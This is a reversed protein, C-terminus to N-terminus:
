QATRREALDEGLLRRQEAQLCLHQREDCAPQAVALDSLLQMEARVRDLVADLLEAAGDACAVPDLEGGPGAPVAELDPRFPPAFRGSGAAQREGAEDM